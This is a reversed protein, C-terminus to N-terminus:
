KGDRSTFMAKLIPRMIRCATRADELTRFAAFNKYNKIHAKNAKAITGNMSSVVYIEPSNEIHDEYKKDMEVAIERMIMSFSAAPYVKDISGLLVNVEKFSIKFKDALKQMYYSVYTPVKNKSCQECTCEPGHVDSLPVLIGEKILTPLTNENVRVKVTITGEGLATNLTGKHVLMDGISVEKGDKTIFKQKM